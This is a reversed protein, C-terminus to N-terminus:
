YFNDLKQYDVCFPFQLVFKKLEDYLTQVHPSLVGLYISTHTAMHSYSQMSNM